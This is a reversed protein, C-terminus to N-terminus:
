VEDEKQLLSNVLWVTFLWPPTFASLVRAHCPLKLLLRAVRLSAWPILNVMDIRQGTTPCVVWAVQLPERFFVFLGLIPNLPLAGAAQGAWAVGAVALLNPIRVFM